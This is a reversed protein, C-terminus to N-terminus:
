INLPYDGELTKFEDVYKQEYKCVDVLRDRLSEIVKKAHELDTFPGFRFSCNADGGGGFGVRPDLGEKRFGERIRDFADYSVPIYATFFVGEYDAHVDEVRLVPREKGM